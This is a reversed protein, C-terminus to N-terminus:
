SIIRGICSAFIAFLYVGLLMFTLIASIDTLPDNPADTPANTESTEGPTNGLDTTPPSTSPSETPSNSPSDSPSDTPAGTPQNTLHPLDVPSARWIKVSKLDTSTYVFTALTSASTSYSPENFTAVENLTENGDYLFVHTSIDTTVVFGNQSCSLHNAWVSVGSPISISAEQDMEFMQSTKNWPLYSLVGHLSSTMVLFSLPSDRSTKVSCIEYSGDISLHQYLIESSFSELVKVSYNTSGLDFPNYVTRYFTVDEDLWGSVVGAQNNEVATGDAVEGGYEFHTGNFRLISNYGGNSPLTDETYAYTDGVIAADVSYVLVDVCRYCTQMSLGFMTDGTDLARPDAISQWKVWGSTVYKWIGISQSGGEMTLLFAAGDGDGDGDREFLLKPVEPYGLPIVGYFSWTSDLKYSDLSDGNYSVLWKESTLTVNGFDLSPFRGPLTTQGNVSVLFLGVLFWFM